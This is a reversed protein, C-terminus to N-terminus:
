TGLETSKPLKMIIDGMDMFYIVLQDTYYFLSANDMQRLFQVQANDENKNLFSAIYHFINEQWM